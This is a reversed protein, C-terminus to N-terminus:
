LQPVNPYLPTDSPGLCATGCGTRNGSNTSIDARRMRSITGRYSTGRLLVNVRTLPGCIARAFPLHARKDTFDVASIAPPHPVQNRCEQDLDNKPEHQRRRQRRLAFCIVARATGVASQRNGALVAVGYVPPRRNAAERFKIVVLGAIRQAAHMFCDCARLAMGFQNEGIYAVLTGVAVRVHMSPLQPRGAFLAM